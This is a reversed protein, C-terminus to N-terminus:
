KFVSINAREEEIFVFLHLISFALAKFAVSDM